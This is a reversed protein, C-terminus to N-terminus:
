EKQTSDGGMAYRWIGLRGKAPIPRDLPRIDELLWAYRGPAYVGCAHERPNQRISALFADDMPVCGTLVCRCLILGYQPTADTLFTLLLQIEPSAVDIKRLGAHIFLEGRYPTRWSRTEVRKQGQAVLSAWPERLSLVRM